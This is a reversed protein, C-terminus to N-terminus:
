CSSGQSHQASCTASLSRLHLKLHKPDTFSPCLHQCFLDFVLYPALDFVSSRAIQRRGPFHSDSLVDGSSMSPTSDSPGDLARGGNDEM